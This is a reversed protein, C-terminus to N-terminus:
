NTSYFYRACCVVSGTLTSEFDFEDDYNGRLAPLGTPSVYSGSGGSTGANDLASMAGAHIETGGGGGGVFSFKLGTGTGTDENRCTIYRVNIHNSSSAPILQTPSAAGSSYACVAAEISAGFLQGDITVALQGTADSNFGYYTNHTSPGVYQNENQNGNMLIKVGSDTGGLTDGENHLLTSASTGGYSSDNAVYLAQSKGTASNSTAGIPVPRLIIFGHNTSPATPLAFKLTISNTTTASVVSWSRLNNTAATSVMYIVDGVRAQHATANIVTTTSSAEVLDNTIYSYGVIPSFQGTFGTTNNMAPASFPQNAETVSVPQTVTTENLSVKFNGSGTLATPFLGILSTLRQAVRQLRGNLGSSATDSAPATETLSGIKSDFNSTTNLAGLLTEVGDLYGLETTQNASSAAGTPLPLSAASVPQTVASGDTKVATGNAATNALSVQLPNTATGGAVAGGSAPLAIGHMQMNQTGAGTDYDATLGTILKTNIASLTAETSAGTPLASSSVTVAGTNCATIKSDISSLSSNGTSQLASTAGGTPLASSSIVTASTNCATVKGNLTSLTSETAAGTPLPVSALSMPIPSTFPNVQSSLTVAGTNCATIKSDISATSTAINGTDVDITSLLAEIGDVYGNLTTQNAATSAGTPLPLSNAKVEAEGATTIKLTDQGDWVKVSSQAFALAPIIALLALFKKM